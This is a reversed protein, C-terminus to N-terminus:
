LIQIAVYLARHDSLGFPGAKKDIIKFKNQELLTWDLKGKFPGFKVTPLKYGNPDTFKKGKATKLEIRHWFEAETEGIKRDKQLLDSASQPRRYPFIGYGHDESVWNGLGHGCTNFDGVIITPNKENEANEAVQNYQVLRGTPGSLNDFHANYVTVTRDGIKIKVKQALRGGTTPQVRAKVQKVNEYDEWLRHLRICGVSEIPYRSLVAEGIVGGGRGIEVERRSGPFKTRHAEIDEEDIEVRATTFTVYKYGLAVAFELAINKNDSRVCNIDAEQFCLIDPTGINKLYEVQERLQIGNKINWTLVSFNPNAMNEVNKEPLADNIWTRTEGYNPLNKRKIIAAAETRLKERYASIEPDQDLGLYQEYAARAPEAEDPIEEIPIDQSQWNKEM